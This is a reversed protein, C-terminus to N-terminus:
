ILPIISLNGTNPMIQMCEMKPLVVCSKSVVVLKEVEVVMDELMQDFRGKSYYRANKPDVLNFIKVM